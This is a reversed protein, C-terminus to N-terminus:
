HHHHEKDSIALAPSHTIFILALSTLNVAYTVLINLYNPINTHIPVLNKTISLSSISDTMKLLKHFPCRGGNQCKSM